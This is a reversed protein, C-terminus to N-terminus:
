RGRDDCRGQLRELAGLRGKTWAIHSFLLALTGALALEDDGGYAIERDYRSLADVGRAIVDEYRARERDLNARESLLLERARLLRKGSSKPLDSELARGAEQSAPIDAFPIPPRHDGRRLYHWPHGPGYCSHTGLDNGQDHAHSMATPESEASNCEPAPAADSEGKPPPDAPERTAGESAEWTFGLQQRDGDPAPRPKRSM